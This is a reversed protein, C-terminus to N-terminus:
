CPPLVRGASVDAQNDVYEDTVFGTVGNYTVKDWWSDGPPGNYPGVVGEGQVRCTFSALVEPPIRGLEASSTGPGGRIIVGSDTIRYTGFTKQTTTTMTLPRTTTTTVVTFGGTGSGADSTDYTPSYSGTASSADDTTMNSSGAAVVLLVVLGVTAAVGIWGLVIGTVALGSGRQQGNSRKIQSRGVYGFVLALLSGGLLGVVLAAIAFGNLSQQNSASGPPAVTSPPSTSAGCSTCFRTSAALVAGCQSCTM